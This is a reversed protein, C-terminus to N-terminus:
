NPLKSGRGHSSRFVQSSAPLKGDILAFLYGEADFKKSNWHEPYVRMSMAVDLGSEDAVILGVPTGGEQIASNLMALRNEDKAQVFTISTELDVVMVVIWHNKAEEDLEAILDPTSRMIEGRHRAGRSTFNVLCLSARPFISDTRLFLLEWLPVITAHPSIRLVQLASRPREVQVVQGRVSKSDICACLGGAVIWCV